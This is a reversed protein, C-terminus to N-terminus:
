KGAGLVIRYPKDEFDDSGEAFTPLGNWPEM